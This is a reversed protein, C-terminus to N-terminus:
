ISVLHSSKTSKINNSSVVVEDLPVEPNEERLKYFLVYASAGSVRETQVSDVREDNFCMWAGSGTDVHAIYHGGGTGGTHHSVGSLDYMASTNITSDPSVFPNLDLGELPFTVNTLVKEGGMVMPMGLQTRFRKLQLVLVKPLRYIYMKKICKRKEKCVECKYMEEGDLVEDATFGKICDEISYREKGEYEPTTDSSRKGNGGFMNSAIKKRLGRTPVANTAESNPIPLCIDFYPDFSSSRNNCTLCEITSQFQGSFIDSIISNSMRLYSNWSNDAEEPITLKKVKEKDKSDDVSMNALNSSVEKLKDGNDVSNSRNRQKSLPSISDSQSSGMPRVPDVLPSTFQPRSPTSMTDTSNGNSDGTKDMYERNMKPTKSEDVGKKERSSRNLDESLSDLLFRLFEQCDQQRFNMLHPVLKRMQVQFEQPSVYGQSTKSAKFIKKVLEAFAQAVIGKSPSSKNIDNVYSGDLFYNIFEDIHMLCQLSSNMFCTNGLNELGVTLGSVSGKPRSSSSSYTMKQQSTLQQKRLAASERVSPTIKSSVNIGTTASMVPPLFSGSSTSVAPTSSAMMQRKTHASSNDGMSAIMHVSPGSMKPLM